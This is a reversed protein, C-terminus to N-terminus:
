LVTLCRGGAGRPLPSALLMQETGFYSSFYAASQAVTLNTVAKVPCWKSLHTEIQGHLMVKAAVGIELGGHSQFLQSSSTFSSFPEPFSIETDMSVYAGVPAAPGVM